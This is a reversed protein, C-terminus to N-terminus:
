RNPITLQIIINTIAIQKDKDNFVPYWPYKTLKIVNNHNQLLCYLHWKLDYKLTLYKVSIQAHLSLINTKETVYLSVM